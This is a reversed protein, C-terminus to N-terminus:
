WKFTVEFIEKKKSVRIQDIIKILFNRKIAIDINDNELVDVTNEIESIFKSKNLSDENIKKEITKLEKQLQQKEKELNSKHKELQDLNIVGAQYAEIQRDFQDDFSDLKNKIRNYEEQLKTKDSANISINDLNIHCNSVERLFEILENELFEMTHFNSYCNGKKQHRSCRAYSRISLSGDKRKRRKVHRILSGGCEYCKIFGRLLYDGYKNGTRKNKRDKILQQALKFDEKDIIAPHNNTVKNDGFKYHGIYTENKIIYLIAHTSWKMKRDISKKKTGAEGFMNEANKALERSIQKSGEGKIYQSFIYRIVKAEPEYVELKGQSNIIYGYPPESVVKGESIRQEMGKKVENSLNESYFEAVSELVGEVMKAVPGDGFDEKISIVDVDCDRRLISKYVISDERNRAFRDTKHILVADYDDPNNKIDNIMRQFEPRDATRASEGRDVYREIVDYNNEVAYNQLQKIQAEISSGEEAQKTTSVRAYIVAKKM